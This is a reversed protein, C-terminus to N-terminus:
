PHGAPVHVFPALVISSAPSLCQPRRAPRALAGLRDLALSTLVKHRCPRPDALKLALDTLLLQLEIKKACGQPL